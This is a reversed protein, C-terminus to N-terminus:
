PLCSAPGSQATLQGVRRRTSGRGEDLPLISGRQQFSPAQLVPVETQLCAHAYSICLFLLSLVLRQHQSKITYLHSLMLNHEQM